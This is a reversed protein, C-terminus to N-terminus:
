KSILIVFALAYEKEDSLSIQSENIGRMKIFTETNGLYTLYPCGLENNKVGIETLRIGDPQFGVGLAKAVAEKAAYRKALFHVQQRTQALDKIEEPTLIRKAFAQGFRQWIEEIRAIAVLDTGIGIINM